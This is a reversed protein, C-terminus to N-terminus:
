VAMWFTIIGFGGLIGLWVGTAMIGFEFWFDRWTADVDTTVRGAAWRGLVLWLLASTALAGGVNVPGLLWPLGTLLATPVALLVLGYSLLSPKVCGISTCSWGVRVALAVTGLVLAPVCALLPGLIRIRGPKAVRRVRRRRGAAVAPADRRPQASPRREDVRARSTGLAGRGPARARPGSTRPAAM